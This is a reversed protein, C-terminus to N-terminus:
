VSAAGGGNVERFFQMMRKPLRLVTEHAPVAGIQALTEPDTIRWSQIVYCDGDDWVTPSDGHMTEPDVGLFELAM